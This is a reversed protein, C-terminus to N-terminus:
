IRPGQGGQLLMRAGQRFVYYSWGGRCGAPMDGGSQHSSHHKGGHAAPRGELNEFEAMAEKAAAQDGPLTFSRGNRSPTM